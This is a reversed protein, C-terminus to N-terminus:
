ARLSVMVLDPVMHMMADHRASALYLRSQEELCNVPFASLNNIIALALLLSLAVINQSSGHEQEIGSLDPLMPDISQTLFTPFAMEEPSVSFQSLLVEKADSM